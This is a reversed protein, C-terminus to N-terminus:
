SFFLFVVLFGLFIRPFSFRRGEAIEVYSFYIELDLDPLRCDAIAGRDCLQPGCLYGGHYGCM